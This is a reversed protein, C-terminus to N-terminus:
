LKQQIGHAVNCDGYIKSEWTKRYHILQSSLLHSEPLISPTLCIICTECDSQPINLNNKLLILYGIPYKKLLVEYYGDEMKGKLKACFVLGLLPFSM